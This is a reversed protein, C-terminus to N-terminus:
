LSWLSVKADIDVQVKYGINKLINPYEKKRTMWYIVAPGKPFARLLDNDRTNAVINCSGERFWHRRYGIPRPRFVPYQVSPTNVSIIARPRRIIM